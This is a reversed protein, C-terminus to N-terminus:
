KRVLITNLDNRLLERYGPRKLDAGDHEVIIMEPRFSHPMLKFLRGSTGETDILVLDFNRGFELLLTDWCVTEMTSRTFKAGAKKWMEMHARETTGLANGGGDWWEQEGDREALGRQLCIVPYPHLNVRLSACAEPSPELAVGSWGRLVLAFTSSYSIGDMAGIELFRGCRGRWYELIHGQEECQSYDRSLDPEM